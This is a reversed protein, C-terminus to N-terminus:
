PATLDHRVGYEVVRLLHAALLGVRVDDRLSLSRLSADGLVLDAPDWKLADLSASVQGLVGDPDRVRGRLWGQLWTSANRYGLAFDNRRFRVDFFGGFHHLFEGALKDASPRQDTPDIDPSIIEVVSRSKGRLGSAEQLLELLTGAPAAPTVALSRQVAQRLETRDAAIREAAAAVADRLAGRVTAAAADDLSGAADELHRELEEVAIHIWKLRSNTKELHRLDEYYSHEKRVQNVQRLTATWTPENHPDFWRGGWGGSGPMTDLLVLVREATNPIDGILDLVRGFPENEIDGGDSYWVHWDGTDNVIGMREYNALAEADDSRDILVPAFGLPTAASALAGEVAALFQASTAGPTLVTNIWDVNTSAPVSRAKVNGERDEVLSALRYNLGGLVTLAMSLHVAENQRYAGPEGDPVQQDGLLDVASKRLSDMSLPSKASHSRLNELSPLDVWTAAMLQVPDAGRLLARAAILATVSGASASSIADVVLDGEAAQVARLVAALAGGEYAGLAVAGPLM